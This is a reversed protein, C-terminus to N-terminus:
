SNGENNTMTLTRAFLRFLSDLLHVDAKREIGYFEESTSNIQSSFGQGSMASMWGPSVCSRTGSQGGSVIEIASRPLDMQEALFRILAENAKGEVPPAALAIKLAAKDGEGSIGVIATRSARPQVRVAFSVGATTESFPIM